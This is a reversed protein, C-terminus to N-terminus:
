KMYSKVNGVVQTETIIEKEQYDVNENFYCRTEPKWVCKEWNSDGILSQTVSKFDTNPWLIRMMWAITSIHALLPHSEAETVQMCRKCITM